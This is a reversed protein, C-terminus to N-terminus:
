PIPCGKIKRYSYLTLKTVKAADYMRKAAREDILFFQDKKLNPVIGYEELLEPVNKM